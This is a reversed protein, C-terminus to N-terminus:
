EGLINGAPISLDHFIQFSKRFQKIRELDFSIHCGYLHLVKLRKCNKCLKEIADSTVEKCFNLKLCELSNYCYSALLCVGRKGTGTSSLDLYQIQQCSRALSQIGIDSIKKCGSVDLYKITRLYTSIEVLSVDTVQPCSSLTMNELKPCQKVIYHVARDRVVNLGTLNLTKMKHLNSAIKTLCVDTVKPIRGINLNELHSCEIAVSFLSKTTLAHCGFVELKILSKCHMKLLVAIAHDTIKCGNMSLNKLHACGEVLAIIGKDTAGTWSIDVSTLHTCYASAYSLVVDGEFRLGSCNTINLEKLSTKCHQFLKGLGEETISQSEDHCRYLSLSEPHHCGISVLCNDSLSHCNAIKIVKWLSDDNAIYRFRRCVQSVNSLDKHLLNTFINIWLEDPLLLWMSDHEEGPAWQLRHALDDSNDKCLHETVVWANTTKMYAAAVGKYEAFKTVSTTNQQEVYRTIKSSMEHDHGSAKNSQEKKKKPEASSPRNASHHSRPRLEGHTYSSWAISSKEWYRRPGSSKSSKQPTNQQKRDISSKLKFDTGYKSENSGRFQTDPGRQQHYHSIDHKVSHNTAQLFEVGSEDDDSTVENTADTKSLYFNHIGNNIQPKPIGEYSEDESSTEHSHDSQKNRAQVKIMDLQKVYHFYKELVSGDSDSVGDLNDDWCTTARGEGDMQKATPAEDPEELADNLDLFDDLIEKLATQHGPLDNKTNSEPLESGDNGLVSGCEECWSTKTANSFSCVACVRYTRPTSDGFLNRETYTRYSSPLVRGLVDNSDSIVTGDETGSNKRVLFTRNTRSGDNGLMDTKQETVKQIQELNELLANMRETDLSSDSSSTDEEKIIFTSNPNNDSEKIRRTGTSYIWQKEFLDEDDSFSNERFNVRRFSNTDMEHEIHPYTNNLPKSYKYDRRITESLPSVPLDNHNPTQLTPSFVRTGQKTKPVNIFDSKVNILNRPSKSLCPQNSMKTSHKTFTAANTLTDDRPFDNDRVYKDVTRIPKCSEERDSVPLVDGGNCKQLFKKAWTMVYQLKESEPVSIDDLLGRDLDSTFSSRLSRHTTHGNTEVESKLYSPILPDKTKTIEHVPYDPLSRKIAEEKYEPQFDHTAIVTSRENEITPQVNQKRLPTNNSEKSTTQSSYQNHLCEDLKLEEPSQQLSHSISSESSIKKSTTQLNYSNSEVESPAPPLSQQVTLQVTSKNASEIAQTEQNTSVVNREEVPQQFAEEHSQTVPIRKNTNKRVECITSTQKQKLIPASLCRRPTQSKTPQQNKPTISRPTKETSSLLSQSSKGCFYSLRKARLFKLNSTRPTDVIGTDPMTPPQEM